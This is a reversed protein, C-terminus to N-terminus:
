LTIDISDDLAKCKKIKSTMTYPQNNASEVYTIEFASVDDAVTFQLTTEGFGSKLTVPKSGTGGQPKALFNTFDVNTGNVFKVNIMRTTPAKKQVFATKAAMVGNVVLIAKM